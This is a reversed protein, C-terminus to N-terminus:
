HRIPLRAHIGIRNMQISMWVSLGRNKGQELHRVLFQLRIEWAITWFVIHKEWRKRYIWFKQQFLYELNRYNMWNERQMKWLVKQLLIPKKKGVANWNKAAISIIKWISKEGMSLRLPLGMRELLICSQIFDYSNNQRSMKKMNIDEAFYVGKDNGIQEKMHIIKNLTDYIVECFYTEMCQEIVEKANCDTMRVTRKRQIECTGLRWGTGVLVLAMCDALTQDTADFRAIAKGTLDELNLKAIVERQGTDIDDNIEKIIYEQDKTRLYMEMKLENAEKAPITCFLTQDGTKLESKIHYDKRQMIGRIPEKHLGYLKIM